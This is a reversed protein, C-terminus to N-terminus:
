RNTNALTSQYVWVIHDLRRATMGPYEKSLEHAAYRFLRKIQETTLNNGNVATSTFTRIHRDVKVNDSNGALMYLYSITAEGMGQLARLSTELEPNEFHAQFDQYTEIGFSHLVSLCDLFLAAKLRGGVRSRNQVIEAFQEPSLGQVLKMMQSVTVQSGAKPLEAFTDCSLDYHKCFRALVNEVSSYRATASFSADLVSLGLSNYYRYDPVGFDLVSKCYLLFLLEM